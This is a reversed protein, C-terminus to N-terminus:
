NIEKQRKKYAMGAKGLSLNKRQQESRKKGKNARSIKDRTEQTVIHGRLKEKTEELLPIGKWGKAKLTKSIKDKTAQTVKRGHINNKNFARREQYQDLEKNVDCFNREMLIKFATDSIIREVFDRISPYRFLLAKKEEKTIRFYLLM